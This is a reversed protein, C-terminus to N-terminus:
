GDAKQLENGPKDFTLISIHTPQLIEGATSLLHSCLLDVDVKEKLGYSFLTLAKRADYKRRYFRRDIVDQIRQRMPNFLAAIVLTSIVIVVPSQQGGITTFLGQLLVVITFYITVLLITLGGYVLTRRIIIDIDYLRYRFIAFGLAILFFMTVLTLATYFVFFGVLDSGTPPYQMRSSNPSFFYFLFAISIFLTFAVLIWKTQQREVSGSITLYRYV